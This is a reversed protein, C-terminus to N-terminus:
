SEARGPLLGDDAGSEALWAWVEAVTATEDPVFLDSDVLEADGVPTGVEKVKDILGVLAETLGRQDDAAVAAEVRDDFPNLEDLHSEEIRFQGEGVIRVIM